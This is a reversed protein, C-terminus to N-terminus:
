SATEKSTPPPSFTGPMGPAHVVRLKVYRTLTGNSLCSLAILSVEKLRRDHATLNSVYLRLYFKQCKASSLKSVNERVLTNPNAFCQLHFTSYPGILLLGSSHCAMMQCLSPWCRQRWIADSLCLSDVANERIKSGMHIGFRYASFSNFNNLASNWIFGLSWRSLSM